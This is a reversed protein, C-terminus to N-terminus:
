DYVNIIEKAIYNVAASEGTKNIKRISRIASSSLHSYAPDCVIFIVKVDPKMDQIFRLQNMEYALDDGNRLGRIITVDCGEKEKKFVYDHLFGSYTEVKKSPLNQKITEERNQEIVHVDLTGIQNPESFVEKKEPNIGVAIIVEDFIAESKELINLHGWHFPNFSGPYIAIKKKM